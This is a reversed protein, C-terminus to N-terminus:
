VVRLDIWHPHNAYGLMKEFCIRATQMEGSRCLREAHWFTCKNFTVEEGVLGGFAGRGIREGFVLSEENAAPASLRRPDVPSFLAQPCAAKDYDQERM